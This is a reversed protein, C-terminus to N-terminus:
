EYTLWHSFREGKSREQLWWCATNHHIQPTPWCIYRFFDPSLFTEQKRTSTLTFISDIAEQSKAHVWLPLYGDSDSGVAGGCVEQFVLEEECPGDLNQIGLSPFTPRAMQKGLSKHFQPPSHTKPTSPILCICALHCRGLAWTVMDAWQLCPQPCANNVRTSSM